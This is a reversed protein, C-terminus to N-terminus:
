IEFSNVCNLKIRELVFLFIYANVSMSLIAYNDLTELTFLETVRFLIFLILYMYM